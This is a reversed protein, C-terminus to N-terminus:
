GVNSGGEARRLYAAASEFREPDDNYFRLGENCHWCLVGRVAGTRHDHDVALARMRKPRGCIECGNKAHTEYWELTVGYKRKLYAARRRAEKEDNSLPM